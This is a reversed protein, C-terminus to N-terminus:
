VLGRYKEARKFIVRPYENVAQWLPRGYLAVDEKPGHALELGGVWRDAPIGGKRAVARRQLWRGSGANYCVLGARWAEIDDIMYNRVQVFNSKDQLVLFTLQYRPNYPDAQWNWGNLAQSRVADRYINFRERGNSDYAITMQVLGRGLERTTKLTAAEKWSSEQEVQGATIHRLPASPWHQDLAIALTPIHRKACEPVTGGHASPVSIFLIVSLLIVMGIWVLASGIPTLIARKLASDLDLTPFIGWGARTDFLFDTLLLVLAVTSLTYITVALQANDGFIVMAASVIGLLLWTRKLWDLIKTPM